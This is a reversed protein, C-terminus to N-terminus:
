SLSLVESPKSSTNMKWTPIISEMDSVCSAVWLYSMWDQCIKANCYHYRVCLLTIHESQVTKSLKGWLYLSVSWTSCAGREKRFSSSDPLYYLLILVAYQNNLKVGEELFTYTSDCENERSSVFINIWYKKWSFHM